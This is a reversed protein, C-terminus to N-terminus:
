GSGTPPASLRLADRARQFDQPTDSEFVLPRGDVPHTFGLMRAHLAQRGLADAAARLAPDRSNRGYVPDGLLPHGDDCLHVRIQHTRGTELRCEVRTAGQLNEIPKVHTVAHKGQRARTSFRKRDVPHRGIPQDHRSPGGIRGLCIAEYVREVDHAAFLKSLADRAQESRAVVMVGSTDKDLRHVIGPRMPDGGPLTDGTHHLLANVLTGGEHGPAPHVVLGAPKNVVLLHPDEYLLDLPIDEPSARSPPPPLPEVRVLAGIVARTDKHVPCGDM